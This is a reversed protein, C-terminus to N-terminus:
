TCRASRVIVDCAGSTRRTDCRLLANVVSHHCCCCFSAVTANCLEWLEYQWRRDSTAQREEESPGDDNAACKTDPERKKKPMCKWEILDCCHLSSLLLLASAFRSLSFLRSFKELRFRFYYFALDMSSRKLAISYCLSMSRPSFQFLSWSETTWMEIKQRKESSLAFPHFIYRSIPRRCVCNTLQPTPSQELILSYFNLLNLSKSNLISSLNSKEGKIKKWKRLLLSSM